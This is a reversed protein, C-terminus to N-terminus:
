DLHDVSLGEPTQADHAVVVAASQKGRSDGGASEGAKISRILQEALAEPTTAVPRSQVDDLMADIVAESTLFNGALVVHAAPRDKRAPITAIRTAVAGTCVEGTHTAAEGAQNMVAVQRLEPHPDVEPLTAIIHDPSCAQSLLDLAYGRLSRNTYAQSIVVGIGARVALVGAGVALSHSATAAGLLKAEPISM